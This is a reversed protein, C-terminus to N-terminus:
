SQVLWLASWQIYKKNEELAKEYKELKVDHENQLNMSLTEYKKKESELQIQLSSIIKISEKELSDLEKEYFSSMEKILHNVAESDSVSISYGGQHVAYSKLTIKGESFISHPNQQLNEFIQLPFPKDM